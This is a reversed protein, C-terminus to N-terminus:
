VSLGDESYFSPDFVFLPCVVDAEAARAVALHDDLRLHKRHWVVTGTADTKDRIDTPRPVDATVPVTTDTTNGATISGENDGTEDRDM